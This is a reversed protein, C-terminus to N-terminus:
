FVNKKKNLILFINKCWSFVDDWLLSFGCLVSVSGNKITIGASGQLDSEVLLTWCAEVSEHHTPWKHHCHFKSELPKSFAVGSHSLTLIVVSWSCQRVPAPFDSLSCLDIAAFVSFFTIIYNGLCYFLKSLTCLIQRVTNCNKPCISCYCM